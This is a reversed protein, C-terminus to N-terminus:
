WDVGIELLYIRAQGNRAFVTFCGPGDVSFARWGWRDEDSASREVSAQHRLAEDTFKWQEESVSDPRPMIPDRTMIRAEGRMGPTTVAPNAAYHEYVVVFWHSAVLLRGM